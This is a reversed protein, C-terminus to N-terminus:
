RTRRVSSLDPIQFGSSPGAFNFDGVEQTRNDPSKIWEDDKEFLSTVFDTKPDSQRTRFHYLLSCFAWRIHATQAFSVRRGLSKRFNKSKRDAAAKREASKPGDFTVGKEKKASSPGETSNLAADADLLAARSPSKNGGPSKM